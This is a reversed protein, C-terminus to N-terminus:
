TRRKVLYKCHQVLPVSGDVWTFEGAVDQVSFLGTFIM